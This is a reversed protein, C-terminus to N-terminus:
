YANLARRTGANAIMRIAISMQEDQRIALWSLTGRSKVLRLISFLVIVSFLLHFSFFEFVLPFFVLACTALLGNGLIKVLLKYAIFFYVIYNLFAFTMFSLDPMYGHVLHFLWGFWQESLMHSSMFDVLPLKM